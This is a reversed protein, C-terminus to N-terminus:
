VQALPHAHAICVHAFYLYISTQLHTASYVKTFNVEYVNVQVVSNLKLSDTLNM